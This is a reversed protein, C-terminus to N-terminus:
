FLFSQILPTLCALLGILPLANSIAHAADCRYQTHMSTIRALDLAFFNHAPFYRLVLCEVHLTIELYCADSRLRDLIKPRLFRINREQVTKSDSLIALSYFDVREIIEEITMLQAMAGVVKHTSYSVVNWFTHGFQRVYVGGKQLVNPFADSYKPEKLLKIALPPVSGCIMAFLCSGNASQDEKLTQKLGMRKAAGILVNNVM